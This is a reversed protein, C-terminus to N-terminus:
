RTAGTRVFTISGADFAIVQSSRRVDGAVMSAALETQAYFMSKRKQLVTHRAMFTWSFLVLSVLISGISLAVVLEVLTM